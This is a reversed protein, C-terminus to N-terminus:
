LCKKIIKILDEKSAVKPHRNIDGSYNNLALDAVAEVKNETLGYDKMSLRDGIIKKFLKDLIIPLANAQEEISKNKLSEDFLCAVNAIREKKQPLTFKIVEPMCVAISGGHPADTIGSLAQGIGHPLTTASHTISLGGLMSCIAMNNRAEINKGNSCATKINEAFLQMGKLAYLDGFDNAKSSIYAEFCHAFADIGTLATTKPPVSIMLDADIIAKTPFISDTKITAKAHTLSNTIVSYRTVESGTGSTTPIVILPLLPKKIEKIPHDKTKAYDWCSGGNTYVINIAKATDIVSGGGLAVIFDINKQKAGNDIEDSRPNPTVKSYKIIKKSNLLSIIKKEIISDEFFPDMVFLCNPGYNETIDTIKNIVGSGCFVETPCYFVQNMM